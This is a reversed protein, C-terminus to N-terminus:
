TRTIRGFSLASNSFALPAAHYMPAPSLYTIDRDFQYLVGLPLAAKNESPHVDPLPGTIGKPGSGVLM